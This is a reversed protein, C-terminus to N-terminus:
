VLLLWHKTGEDERFRFATQTVRFAHTTILGQLRHAGLQIKGAKINTDKPNNEWAESFLGSESSWGSHPSVPLLLSVPSAWNRQSM